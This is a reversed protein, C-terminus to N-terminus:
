EERAIHQLLLRTLEADAAARHLNEPIPIRCQKAANMLTHWQYDGKSDNWEGRHRAYLKMACGSFINPMDMNWAAASQRLLRVDYDANYIVVMRGRIARLLDDWIEPLVPADAVDQTTIGHVNTAEPPIARTPRVLTNILTTGDHNIVAIECVEANQDLGTTETDLYVPRLSIWGQAEDNALPQTDAKRSLAHANM